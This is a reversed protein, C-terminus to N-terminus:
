FKEDPKEGKRINELILLDFRSRLQRNYYNLIFGTVIYFLRLFLVNTDINVPVTTM